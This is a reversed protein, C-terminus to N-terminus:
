LIERMGTWIKISKIKGSFVDRTADAVPYRGACGIFLNEFFTPKTRFDDKIVDVPVGGDVSLKLRKQSSDFAFVATHWTDAALSTPLYIYGTPDNIGPFFLYPRVQGNVKLLTFSPWASVPGYSFLVERDNISSPFKFVVEITAAGRLTSWVQSSRPIIAGGQSCNLTSDSEDITNKTQLFGLRPNGDIQVQFAKIDGGTGVSIPYRFSIDCFPPTGLADSIAVNDFYVAPGTSTIRFTASEGAALTHDSLGVLSIDDDTYDADAPPTAGLAIWTASTPLTGATIGGGPLISVSPVFAENWRIWGDMHFTNLDRSTTGTNTITFDLYVGNGRALLSSGSLTDAGPLTGFDGDRSGSTGTATWNGDGDGLAPDTSPTMTGTLGPAIITAPQNANTAHWAEWGALISDAEASGALLLGGVLLGRFRNEIM